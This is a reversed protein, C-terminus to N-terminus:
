NQIHRLKRKEWGAVRVQKSVGSNSRKRLDRTFDTEGAREKVRM